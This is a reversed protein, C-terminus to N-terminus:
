IRDAAKYQQPQQELQAKMAKAQPMASTGPAPEGDPRAASVALEGLVAQIFASARPATLHRVVHLAVDIRHLKKTLEEGLFGRCRHWRAAQSLGQFDRSAKRSLTRLLRGPLSALLGAVDDEEDADEGNQEMNVRASLARGTRALRLVQALIAVSQLLLPGNLYWFSIEPGSARNRSRFNINTALNAEPGKWLHPV